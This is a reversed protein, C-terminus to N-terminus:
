EITQTLQARYCMLALKGFPTALWVHGKEFPYITLYGREYLSVYNARPFEMQTIQSVDEVVELNREIIRAEVATIAKM